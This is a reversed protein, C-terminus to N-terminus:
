PARGPRIRSGSSRGRAAGGTRVQRHELRGPCPAERVDPGRPFPHGASHPFTVPRNRTEWRGFRPFSGPLKPPVWDPRSVAFQRTFIIVAGLNTVMRGRRRGPPARLVWSSELVAPGLGPAGSHSATMKACHVRSHRRGGRPADAHADLGSTRDHAHGRPFVDPFGPETWAGDDRSADYVPETTGRDTHRWRFRWPAWGWPRARNVAAMEDRATGGVSPVKM